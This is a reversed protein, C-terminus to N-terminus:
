SRRAVVTTAELDDAFIESPADRKMNAADTQCEKPIDFVSQDKVGHEFNTWEEFLHRDGHHSGGRSFLNVPIGTQASIGVRLNWGFVREEWLDVKVGNKNDGIVYSTTKTANSALCFPELKGHLPHIECEKGM